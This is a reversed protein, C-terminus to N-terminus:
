ISEPSKNPGELYAERIRFWLLVYVLCSLDYPRLIMRDNVWGVGLFLALPLLVLMHLIKSLRLARGQPISPHLLAVAAVAYAAALISILLCDAPHADANAHVSFYYLAVYAFRTFLGICFLGAACWAARVSPAFTLLLAIPFTICAIWRSINPYFIFTQLLSM